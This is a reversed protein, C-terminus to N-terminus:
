ENIGEAPPIAVGCAPVCSPAGHGGPIGGLWGCPLVAYQFGPSGRPVPLDPGSFAAFTPGRSWSQDGLLGLVWRPVPPSMELSPPAAVRNWDMGRTGTSQGRGRTEGRSLSVRHGSPCSRTRWGCLVAGQPVAPSPCLHHTFEPVGSGMGSNELRGPPLPPSM